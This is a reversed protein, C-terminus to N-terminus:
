SKNDAGRSDALLVRAEAGIQKLRPLDKTEDFRDSIEAAKMALSIVQIAQELIRIVVEKSNRGALIGEMLAGSNRHLLDLDPSIDLVTSYQRMMAERLRVNAKISAATVEVIPQTLDLRQQASEFIEEQEKSREDPNDGLVKDILAQTPEDVQLQRDWNAERTLRAKLKLTLEWNEPNATAESYVGMLEEHASVRRAGSEALTPLNLTLDILVGRLEARINEMPSVELVGRLPPVLRALEFRLRGGFTTPAVLEVLKERSRRLTEVGKELDICKPTPRPSVAVIEKSPKMSSITFLDWLLTLGCTSIWKLLCKEM